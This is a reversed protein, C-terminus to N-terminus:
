DPSTRAGQLATANAVTVNAACSSKRKVALAYSFGAPRIACSVEPLVEAIAPNRFGSM